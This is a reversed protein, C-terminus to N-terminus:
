HVNKCQVCYMLYVIFFFAIEHCTFRAFIKKENLAFIMHVKKNANFIILSWRNTVTVYRDQNRFFKRKNWNDVIMKLIFFFLSAEILREAIINWYVDKTEFCTSWIHIIYVFCTKITLNWNDKNIHVNGQKRCIQSLRDKICIYQFIQYSYHKKFIMLDFRKHFSSM